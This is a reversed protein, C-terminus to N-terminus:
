TGTRGHEVDAARQDARDTQHIAIASQISQLFHRIAREEQEVLRWTRRLKTTTEDAAIALNARAATYGEGEVLRFKESALHAEYDTRAAALRKGADTLAWNFEFRMAQLQNGWTAHRTRRLAAVLKKHLPDHPDPNHLGIRQLGELIDAELPPPAAAREADLDADLHTM